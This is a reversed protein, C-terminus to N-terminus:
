GVLRVSSLQLQRLVVVGGGFRILLRDELLSLGRRHEEGVIDFAVVLPDLGAAGVNVIGGVSTVAEVM